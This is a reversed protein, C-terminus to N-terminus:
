WKTSLLNYDFTLLWYCWYRNKYKSAAWVPLLCRHPLETLGTHLVWLDTQHWTGWVPFLCEHPLRPEWPGLLSFAGVPRDTAKYQQATLAMIILLIQHLFPFSLLFFTHTTTLLLYSFAFITFLPSINTDHEGSGPHYGPGPQQRPNHRPWQEVVAQPRHQPGHGLNGGLVHSAQTRLQQWRHGNQHRLAQAVDPAMNNQSTQATHPFLNFDPGLHQYPGQRLTHGQTLWPRNIGM